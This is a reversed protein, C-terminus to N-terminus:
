KNELYSEFCFEDSGFHSLNPSSLTAPRGFTRRTLIKYTQLAEVDEKQKYFISKVTSIKNGSYEEVKKKLLHDFPLSNDEVWFKPNFDDLDPICNGGNFNNEYIFSDYFPVVFVLDKPNWLEKFKKYDIRGGGEVFASSYIKNLLRCGEDTKAFIINKHNSNDDESLMDNCFSLRLGYLLDIDNERCAKFAKLFSTLNDEVLTLSKINNELCISIISDPGNKDNGGDITLISKSISFTSTFIPTM